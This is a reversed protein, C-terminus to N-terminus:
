TTFLIIRLSRVKFLVEYDNMYGTTGGDIM